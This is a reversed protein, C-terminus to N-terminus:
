RLPRQRSLPVPATWNRGSFRWMRYAPRARNTTAEGGLRGRVAQEVSSVIAALVDAPADHEVGPLLEVMSPRNDDTSM